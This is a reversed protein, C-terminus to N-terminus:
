KSLCPVFPERRGSDKGLVKHASHSFFPPFCDWSDTGKFTKGWFSLSFDGM